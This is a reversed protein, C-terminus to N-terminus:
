KKLKRGIVVIQGVRDYKYLYYNGSYLEIMCINLCGPLTKPIVVWTCLGEKGLIVDGKQGLVM